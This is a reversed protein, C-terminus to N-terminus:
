PAERRGRAGLAPGVGVSARLRILERAILDARLRPVELFVLADLLGASSAPFARIKRNFWSLVTAVGRHTASSSLVAIPVTRGALLRAMRRRQAWTPRGGETLVLQVTREIGQAEVAELFGAWEADAPAEPGHVVLFLRDIFNFAMRKM